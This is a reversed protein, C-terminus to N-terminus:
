FVARTFGDSRTQRGPRGAGCFFEAVCQEGSGAEPDYYRNDVGAGDFTLVGKSPPHVSKSISIYPVQNNVSTDANWLLNSSLNAQGSFDDFFPLTLVVMSQPQNGVPNAKRLTRMPANEDGILVEQASLGGPMAGFLLFAPLLRLLTIPNKPSIM